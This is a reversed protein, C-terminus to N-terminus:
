NIGCEKIVIHTICWTARFSSVSPVAYVHAHLLHHLSQVLSQFDRHNQLSGRLGLYRPDTLGVLMMSWYALIHHLMHIVERATM